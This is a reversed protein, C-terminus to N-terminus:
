TRHGARVLNGHACRNAPFDASVTTGRGLESAISLRGGHLEVLRKSLPLGLGVGGHKRAYSGEVQGFPELVLPIHAQAIGIGTDTVSVRLGGDHDIATDVAIRGGAPTFKVADILRLLVDMDVDGNASGKRAQRIQRELLKHM